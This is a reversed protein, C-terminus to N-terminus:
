QDDGPIQLLGLMGNPLNVFQYVIDDAITYKCLVNLVHM